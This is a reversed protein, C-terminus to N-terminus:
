DEKIIFDSVVMLLLSILVTLTLICGLAVASAVQIAPIMVCISNGVFILLLLALASLYVIRKINDDIGRKELFEYLGEARNIEIFLSLVILLCMILASLVAIAIGLASGVSESLVKGMLYSGYVTAMSGAAVGIPLRYMSTWFNNKQIAEDASAAKKGELFAKIKKLGKVVTDSHTGNQLTELYASIDRLLESGLQPVSARPGYLVSSSLISNLPDTTFAIEKGFRLTRSVIKAVDFRKARVDYCTVTLLDFAGAQANINLATPAGFYRTALENQIEELKMVDLNFKNRCVVLAADRPVMTTYAMTFMNMLSITNNVNEYAMGQLKAVASEINRARYDDIDAVHFYKPSFCAWFQNEILDFLPMVKERFSPEQNLREACRNLVGRASDYVRCLEKYETASAYSKKVFETLLEMYRHIIANKGEENIREPLIYQEHFDVIYKDFSEFNVLLSPLEVALFYSFALQPSNSNIITHIRKFQKPSKHSLNSLANIIAKEDAGNKTMIERYALKDMEEVFLREETKECFGRLAKLTAEDAILANAANIECLYVEAIHHYVNDSDKVDLKVFATLLGLTEELNNAAQSKKQWERFFQEFIKCGSEKFSTEIYAEVQSSLAEIAQNWTRLDWDMNYLQTFGYRSLKSYDVEVVSNDLDIFNKSKVEDSFFIMANSGKYSFSTLNVRLIFPIKVYIAYMMEKYYSLYEELEITRKVCFKPTLGESASLLGLAYNKINEKTLNYKAAIAEYNMESYPISELVPFAKITENYERPIAEENIGFIRAPNKAYEYFDKLSFCFCHAFSVGRGDKGQARYNVNVIYAYTQYTFIGMVKGPMGNKRLEILNSATKEFGEKATKPMGESPCVIKWGSGSGQTGVRYYAAQYINM